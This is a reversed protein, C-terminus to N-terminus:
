FRPRKDLSNKFLDIRQRLIDSYAMMFEAQKSLLLKEQSGLDKYMEGSIFTILKDLKIDLEAKEDVVRQQHPLM